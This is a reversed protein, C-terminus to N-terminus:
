VSGQSLCARYVEVHRDTADEWRFVSARRRGKERWEARAADNTLLTAVAAHFGKLDGPPVLIGGEGIVEPLSAVRFAVVPTGCAMAELPPFGFGEYLSPFSLCCANRYSVRLAENDLNGLFRVRSELGLRRVERFLRGGEEERRGTVCLQVDPHRCFLERCIDLLQGLNKHPKHNGVYLLYREPLRLRQKIELDTDAPPDFFGPELGHPIAVTKEATGPFYRTLERRSFDSPTIIARASNVAIRMQLAAYGKHPPSKPFVLHIVDHITVVLPVQLGLPVIYHPAHFIDIPVRGAKRRLSVQEWLGYLRASEVHTKLRDRAHMPLEMGPKVWAHLAEIKGDTLLGAMLNRLYRGIGGDWAKRADIGVRV